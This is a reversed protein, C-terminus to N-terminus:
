AWTTVDKAEAMVDNECIVHQRM